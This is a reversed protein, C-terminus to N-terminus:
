EACAASTRFMTVGSEAPATSKEITVSCRKGARRPDPGSYLAIVLWEPSDRTTNVGDSAFGSPLSPTEPQPSRVTVNKFLYGYSRGTAVEVEGEFRTSALVADASADKEATPSRICGAVLVTSMALLLVVVRCASRLAM